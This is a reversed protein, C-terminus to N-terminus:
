GHERAWLSTWATIDALLCYAVSEWVCVAHNLQKLAQCVLLWLWLWIPQVESSKSKEQMLIM